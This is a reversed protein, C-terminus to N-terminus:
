GSRPSVGIKTAWSSAWDGPGRNGTLPIRPPIRWPAWWSSGTISYSYISTM